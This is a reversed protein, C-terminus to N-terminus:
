EYFKEELMTGFRRIDKFDIKNTLVVVIYNRTKKDAIPFKVIAADHYINWYKGNANYDWGVKNYVDAKKFGRPLGQRWEYTTNPQNLFSDWMQTLLGQDAIDEHLYFKKMIKMIDGSVSQLRSIDSDTIGWENEIITDLKDRGIMGWLTEACPSNSERIALDLCKLITKGTSGAKNGGNWEGTQVRKYGEYVVFLKYLSATQYKESMNYSANIKDMDLDYILVSRNGKVSAAWKDVVPQFDIEEIETDNEEEEDEDEEDDDPLDDIWSYDPEPEAEKPNKLKYIGFGVGFASGATILFIAILEILHHNRKKKATKKKKEAGM